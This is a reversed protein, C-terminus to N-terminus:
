PLFFDLSEKLCNKAWGSIEPSYRGAAILFEMKRRCLDESLRKSFVLVKPFLLANIFPIENRKCYGVGRGDDTIVFDAYGREYLRITDMEGRHLGVVALPPTGHMEPTRDGPALSYRKEALRKAFEEAGPYGDHTLEKYVSEAVAVQYVDTLQEFIDSKFLLIASSADLLIKKM